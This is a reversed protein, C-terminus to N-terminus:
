GRPFPFYPMRDGTEHHLAYLVLKEVDTRGADICRQVWKLLAAQYAKSCVYAPLDLWTARIKVLEAQARTILTDLDQTAPQM